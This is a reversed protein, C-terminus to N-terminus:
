ACYNIYYIFLRQLNPYKILLESVGFEAVVNDIKKTTYLILINILYEYEKRPLNKKSVSIIRSAFNDQLTSYSSKM